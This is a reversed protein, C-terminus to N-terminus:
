GHRAFLSGSFLTSRSIRIVTKNRVPAPMRPTKSDFALCNETLFSISPTKICSCAGLLCSFGASVSLLSYLPPSPPSDYLLPLFHRPTLLVCYFSVMSTMPHYCLLKALSRTSTFLTGSHSHHQFLLSLSRMHSSSVSMM